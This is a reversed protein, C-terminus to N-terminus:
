EARRWQIAELRRPRCTWHKEGSQEFETRSHLSVNERRHSSTRADRHHHEQRQPCSDNRQRSNETALHASNSNDLRSISADLPFISPEREFRDFRFSRVSSRQVTFTAHICVITWCWSSRWWPIYFLRRVFGRLDHGHLPLVSCGYRRSSWRRYRRDESCDSHHQRSIRRRWDFGGITFSFKGSALFYISVGAGALGILFIIVCIIAM